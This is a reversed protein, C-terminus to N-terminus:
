LKKPIAGWDAVDYYDAHYGRGHVSEHEGEDPQGVDYYDGHYVKCNRERKLSVSQVIVKQAYTKSM